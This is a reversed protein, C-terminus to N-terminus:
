RNPLRNVRIVRYDDSLVLEASDKNPGDFILHWQGNRRAVERIKPEPFPSASGKLALFDSGLAAGVNIERSSAAGTGTEIEQAKNM